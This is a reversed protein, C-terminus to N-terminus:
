GDYSTDVGKRHIDDIIVKTLALVGAGRYHVVEGQVKDGNEIFEYSYRHYGREDSSKNRHGLNHYWIQSILRGNIRFEISGM